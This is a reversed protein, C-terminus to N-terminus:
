LGIKLYNMRYSVCKAFMFSDTWQDLITAISLPNCTSSFKRTFKLKKSIPFLYHNNLGIVVGSILSHNTIRLFYSNSVFTM